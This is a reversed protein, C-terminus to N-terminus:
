REFGIRTIKENTELWGAIARLGDLASETSSKLRFFRENALGAFKSEVIAAEEQLLVIFALISLATGLFFVSVVLFVARLPLNVPIFWGSLRLFLNM